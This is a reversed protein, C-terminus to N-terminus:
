LMLATFPCFVGDKGAAYIARAIHIFINSFVILAYFKRVSSLSVAAPAFSILDHIMIDDKINYSVCTGERQHSFAASVHYRYPVMDIKKFAAGWDKGKKTVPANRFDPTNEAGMGMLVMFSPQGIYYEECKVVGEQFM